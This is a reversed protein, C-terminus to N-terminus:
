RQVDDRDGKLFRNVGTYIMLMWAIPWIVGSIFAVLRFYFEPYQEQERKIEPDDSKSTLAWHIILATAAGIITYILFAM